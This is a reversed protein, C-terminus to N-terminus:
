LSFVEKLKITKKMACGFNTKYTHYVSIYYIARFFGTKEESKPFNM